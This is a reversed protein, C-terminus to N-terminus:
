RGTFQSDLYALRKMLFDKMEEACELYLVEKEAMTNGETFLEWRVANMMASDLLRRAASPLSAATREVTQRANEWYLQSARQRFDAQNWLAYWIDSDKTRAAAYLGNPDHLDIGEATVGSAAIAKDYDWAPGAFLKRSASDAPKYLYQSTFAADLNKCIEELLYKQAFSDQDIYATYHQGTYPNRGDQSFVADEFAQYLLGIYSAQAQSASEPSKIVVTQMRSTMFGSTELGYRDSTELELLYGGTIDPPDAPIQAGKISYLRGTETMFPQAQEMAGPKNVKESAKELDPIAIRNRDIEVKESLLYNGMYEGDAYVEVFKAQPTYSLGFGEAMSFAAANRLLSRDFANALLLWRRAEGMSLLDSREALKMQYSKKDTDTWSSNGRCKLADIKGCHNLAGTEDFLSFRGEVWLAKDGHVAELSGSATELFLSATPSSIMVHLPFVISHEEQVMELRHIGGSLTFPSGPLISQGDISIQFSPPLQWYLGNEYLSLPLFLSCGGDGTQQCSIRPLVGEEPVATLSQLSLSLSEEARASGSLDTEEAAASSDPSPNEESQFLMTETAEKAGFGYGALLLLLLFTSLIFFLKTSYNQKKIIIEGRIDGDYLPPLEDLTKQPKTRNKQTRSPDLILPRFLSNM